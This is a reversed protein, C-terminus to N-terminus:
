WKKTISAERAIADELNSRVQLIAAQLGVMRQQLDTAAVVIANDSASGNQETSVSEGPEKNPSSSEAPEVFKILEEVRKTLHMALEQVVIIEVPVVTSSSSPVYSGMRMKACHARHREAGPPLIDTRHVTHAHTFMSHWLDILRHHNSFLLFVLSSDRPSVQRGESDVVDAMTKRQALHKIVTHYLDVVKHTVSFTNGVDDEFPDKPYLEENPAAGNEAALNHVSFPPLRRSLTELTVSLNVLDLFLNPSQLDGTVSYGLYHHSHMPRPTPDNPIIHIKEDRDATESSHQNSTDTNSTDAHIVPGTSNDFQQSHWQSPETQPHLQSIWDFGEDISTTNHVSWEMAMDNFLEDPEGFAPIPPENDLVVDRVSSVGSSLPKARVQGRMSPSYVCDTGAKLCRACIGNSSAAPRSCKLKFSHCRDCALRRRLSPPKENSM